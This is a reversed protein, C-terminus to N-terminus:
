PYFIFDLDRMMIIQTVRSFLGLLFSNLNALTITFFVM